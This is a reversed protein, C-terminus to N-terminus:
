ASPSNRSGPSIREQWVRRRGFRTVQTIRDFFEIEVGVNM